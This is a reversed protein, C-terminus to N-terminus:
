GRKHEGVEIRRAFDRPSRWTNANQELLWKVIEQREDIRGLTRGESEGQLKALKIAQKAELTKLAM